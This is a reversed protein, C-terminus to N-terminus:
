NLKQLYKRTLFMEMKWNIYCKFIVCFFMINTKKKKETNQKEIERKNRGENWSELQM